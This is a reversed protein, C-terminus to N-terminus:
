EIYVYLCVLLHTCIKYFLKLIISVKSAISKLQDRGTDSYSNTSVERGLVFINLQNEIVLPFLQFIPYWCEVSLNKWSKVYFIMNERAWRIFGNLCWRTGKKGWIDSFLRIYRARLVPLDRQSSAKRENGWWIKYYYGWGLISLYYYCCNYHFSAWSGQIESAIKFSFYQPVRGM